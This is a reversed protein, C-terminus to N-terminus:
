KRGFDAPNEGWLSTDWKLVRNHVGGTPSMVTSQKLEREARTIREFLGRNIATRVLKTNCKQRAVWGIATESDSYVPWSLGHGRLWSLAAVIALFEGVNNTGDQFPGAKFLRECNETKVGQYELRGPSGSCAADVTISPMLPSNRAGSWKRQGSDAAKFEGYGQHFAATAKEATAFSKYQAGVFGKVQRECDIWSDYVGRRRGRWVVYYKAKLM